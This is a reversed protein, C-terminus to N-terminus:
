DEALYSQRLAAFEESERVTAISDWITEALQPQNRAFQKSFVFYYPKTKIPIPHKIINAYYAPNKDLIPQTMTGQQVVADVRHRLLVDLNTKQNTGEIVHYGLKRLDGVISYGAVAILPKSLNDIKEGDWSVKTDKLTFLSYDLIHLHRNTDLKGNVYPYVVYTEREPLYSLDFAADVQNKQLSLICRKWPRRIFKFKVGTQQSVRHLIELTLGPRDQDIDKVSYYHPPNSVNEYCVSVVKQPEQASVGAVALTLLLM